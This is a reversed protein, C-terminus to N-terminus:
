EFKSESKNIYWGKYIKRNESFYSRITDANLKNNLCFGKLNTINKYEVGSPNIFKYFFKWSNHEIGHKNLNMLRIRERTKQSVIKNRNGDGIKKKTEETHHTGIRKERIKNATQETVIRNFHNNGGLDMNYGNPMFTDYKIINFTERENLLKENQINDELIEWQINKCGYKRIANHFYASSLLKFSSYKHEKIRKKLSCITQGIYSKKNPFTAKYILM